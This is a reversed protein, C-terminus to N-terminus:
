LATLDGCGNSRGCQKKRRRTFSQFNRKHLHYYLSYRSRHTVSVTTTSSQFYSHLAQTGMLHQSHTGQTNETDSLAVALGCGELRLNGFEVSLSSFLPAFAEANWLLNIELWSNWLSGLLLTHACYLFM